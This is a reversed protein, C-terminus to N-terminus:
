IVHVVRLEDVKKSSLILFWIFSIFACLIVFRQEHKSKVHSGDGRDGSARTEVPEFPASPVFDAVM